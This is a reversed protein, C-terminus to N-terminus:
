FYFKESISHEIKQVELSVLEPILQKLVDSFKVTSSWKKASLARLFSTTMKKRSTLYLSRQVWEEDKKFWSRLKYTRNIENGDYSLIIDNYSIEIKKFASSFGKLISFYKKLKEDVPISSNLADIASSMWRDVDTLNVTMGSYSEIPALYFAKLCVFLLIKKEGRRYRIPATCARFFIM